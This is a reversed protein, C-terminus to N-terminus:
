ASVLVPKITRGSQMDALAENARELPYHEVLKSLHFRRALQPVMGVYEVLDRPSSAWSGQVRLQKKTIYHPNIPTEGHDTYQGVVVYTGGRRVMAIGESVAKPVGTAELVIDAGRGSSTLPLVTELRASEDSDFINVHVDGIGLDRAVELRSDPGGVVIVTSAGALKILMALALGVPGSGQVVAVDGPQPKDIMQLAHIATPGACGLAIVDDPDTGDPLKVVTSDPQLYIQEAWGGSLHPWADSSQNIGYVKRLDCLSPQGGRCYFCNNCPISSAWSITDGAVLPTGNADRTMREGLQRVKGVSEHGLIVPLPIPLNGSQLHIDTGCIGAHTVDAVLGDAGPVIPEFTCQQLEGGFKNLVMAKVRGDFEHLTSTM